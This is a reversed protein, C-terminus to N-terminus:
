KSWDKELINNKIDLYSAVNYRGGCGVLLAM